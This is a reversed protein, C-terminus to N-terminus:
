NLAAQLVPVVQEASAYGQLLVEGPSERDSRQIALSPFSNAGLIRRLHFDQELEEQTAPADLRELFDERSLGLGVETACDALVESASPNRAERYYSRQIADFMPRELGSARALVVARCAPYTSRRIEPVHGDWFSRNFSVGTRAEVADWAQQVYARMELPMPEDTDPALGGLVLRVPVQPLAQEIRRLQPSFGWCWSCMPDAIYLLTTEEPM